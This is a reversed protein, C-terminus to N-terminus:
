HGPAPSSSCAWPGPTQPAPNGDPSKVFTYSATNGLPVEALALAAGSSPSKRPAADAAPPAITVEMITNAFGNQYGLCSIDDGLSAGICILQASRYNDNIVADTPTFYGSGPSYSGRDMTMGVRAVGGDVQCRLQDPTPGVPAPGGGSGLYEGVLSASGSVTTCPWAGPTQPPAPGPQGRSRLFTYSAHLLSEMSADASAAVMVDFIDSTGGNDYGVCHMGEKLTSGVCTLQGMHYNDMIRANIPNFRGGGGGVGSYDLTVSFSAAGASCLLQQQNPTAKGGSQATAVAVLLAAAASSRALM